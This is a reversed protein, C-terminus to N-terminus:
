KPSFHALILAALAAESPQEPIMLDHYGWENLCGATSTGIAILKQDPLLPHQSFYANANFPSTFVLLDANSASVQTKVQNDYVALQSCTTYLALNQLLTERANRAGAFLVLQNEAFARFTTATSTPDGTGIFDPVIGYRQLSEATANGICAWRVKPLSWQQTEFRQFFFAVGNKSSFFIWDSAPPYPFPLATLELLNRQELEWLPPPLARLFDSDPQLIRSIFIKM